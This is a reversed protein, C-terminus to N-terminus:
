TDGKQIINKTATKVSSRREEKIEGWPQKDGNELLVFVDSDDNKFNIYREIIVDCYLESIECGFCIRNTQEAAILTSGSGLFLDLVIENQLSSNLIGKVCLEIPKMTPHLESSTPRDVEWVEVQKRDGKFGSINFWGYFCPEYMRQYKGMALVLRNKKWIITASWHAGEDIYTLRARMGDPGPAGWIYMDGLLITKLINILKKNFDIWDEPTQKDNIIQKHKGSVHATYRPNNSDGYAVNYPPDMFAMDAKKGDMLKAVCVEDTSDGCMLRHKGLLIIDGLQTVPEEIDEFAKDVDFNDELVEAPNLTAIEDLSFGTLEVDFDPLASLEGLLISLKGDDWSGSIKNLGINLAKEQADDLDVISMKAETFGKNEMVTMTQHGGVLNGSRVNFVMPLVHGFTEISKSLKEYEPMGPKLEVRPNYPARNVDKFKKLKIDM